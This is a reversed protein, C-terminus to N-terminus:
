IADQIAAAFPFEGIQINKEDKSLSSPHKNNDRSVNILQPREIWDSYCAEGRGAQDLSECEAM